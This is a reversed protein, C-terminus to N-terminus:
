EDPYDEEAAERLAETLEAFAAADWQGEVLEPSPREAKSPMPESVRIVDTMFELAAKALTPDTTWAGFELHLDSQKTWNASGMWVSMPLLHDQWGGLDGEWTYAACCVALKAHLLPL